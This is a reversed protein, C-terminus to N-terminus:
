TPAGNNIANNGERAVSEAKSEKLDPDDPDFNVIFKKLEQGKILKIAGLNPVEFRNLVELLCNKKEVEKQLSDLKDPLDSFYTIQKIEPATMAPPTNYDYNQPTSGLYRNADMAHSDQNSQQGQPNDNRKDMDFEESRPLLLLDRLYYSLSTTLAAAIAKDSPTGKKIIAPFEIISLEFQDSEHHTLRITSTVDLKENYCFGTRRVTLGAGHLATRCASLMEEASTYKYKSFDNYAGKGVGEIDKQANWLASELGGKTPESTEGEEIM